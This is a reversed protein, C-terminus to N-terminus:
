IYILSFQEISEKNENFPLIKSFFPVLKLKKEKKQM